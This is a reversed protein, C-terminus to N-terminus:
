AHPMKRSRLHPQLFDPNGKGAEGTPPPHVKKLWAIEEGLTTVGGANKIAYRLIDGLDGVMESIEYEERAIAKWNITDLTNYLFHPDIQAELASIERTKRNWPPNGSRDWCCIPRRWWKTSATRLRWLRRPCTAGTKRGPPLDGEEVRHMAEFRSGRVSNCSSDCDTRRVGPCHLRRFGNGGAALVSGAHNEPLPVLPYFEM